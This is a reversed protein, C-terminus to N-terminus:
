DIFINCKNCDVLPNSLLLKILDVWGNLCALNLPTNGDCDPMNPDFRGDKIMLEVLSMHRNECAIYLPTRGENDTANYDIKYKQNSPIELLVILCDLSGMECVYHFYNQKNHDVRNIIMDIDNQNPPIQSILNKMIISDNLSIAEMIQFYKVCRQMVLVLNNSIKKSLPSNEFTPDTKILKKMHSELIYTIEKQSNFFSNILIKEFVTQENQENKEVKWLNLSKGYDKSECTILYTVCNIRYNKCAIELPSVLMNDPQEMDIRPDSSLLQVISQFGNACATYFPTEGKKNPITPDIQNCGLLYVVIDFQDYQCATHFPTMGEVNPQNPDLNTMNTSTVLIRVVEINGTLCATNLPSNGCSNQEYKYTDKVHNVDDGIYLSSRESIKEFSEVYSKSLNILKSLKGDDEDKVRSLIDAMKAFGDNDSNQRDSLNM